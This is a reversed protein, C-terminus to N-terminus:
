LFFSKVRLFVSFTKTSKKKIIGEIIKSQVLFHSDVEKSDQSTVVLHHHHARQLKLENCVEEGERERLYM